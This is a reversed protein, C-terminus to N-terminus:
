VLFTFKLFYTSINVLRQFNSIKYPNDEILAVRINRRDSVRNQNRIIYSSLLKGTEPLTFHMQGSPPNFLLLLLPPLHYEDVQCPTSPATSAPPPNIVQRPGPITLEQMVAVLHLSKLLADEVQSIHLAKMGFVNEWEQNCLVMSKNQEDYHRGARLMGVVDYWLSVMTAKGLCTYVAHLTSNPNIAYVNLNNKSPHMTMSRYYISHLIFFLLADHHVCFSFFLFSILRVLDLVEEFLPLFFMKLM